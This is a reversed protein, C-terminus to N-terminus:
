PIPSTYNGPQGPVPAENSGDVPTPSPLPAVSGGDGGSSTPPQSYDIDPFNIILDEFTPDEFTPEEFTPEEFDSGDGGPANEYDINPFTIIPEVPNDPSDVPEQGIANDMFEEQSPLDLPDGIEFGGTPDTNEGIVPAGNKIDGSNFGSDGFGDPLGGEPASFGGDDLGGPQSPASPFNPANPMDPLSPTSTEGIIATWDPAPPIANKIDELQGMYESWGPCAFVACADCTKEEPEEGMGSGDSTCSPRDLGSVVVDITGVLANSSNYLFTKYSTNCTFNMGTMYTYGYDSAIVTKETGMSGFGDSWSQLVIKSVSTGVFDITYRNNSSDFYPAGAIVNGTQSVVTAAGLAQLPALFLLCFSLFLIRKKIM